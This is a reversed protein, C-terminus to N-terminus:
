LQRHITPIYGSDLSDPGSLEKQLARLESWRKLTDFQHNTEQKLIEVIYFDNSRWYKMYPENPQMSYFVGSDSIHLTQIKQGSNDNPVTMYFVSALTKDSYYTFYTETVGELRNLKVGNHDYFEKWIDVDHETFGKSEIEGSPYYLTAPGHREGFEYTYELRLSGSKLYYRFFGHRVSDLVEYEKLLEGSDYYERVIGKKKSCGLALASILILYGSLRM